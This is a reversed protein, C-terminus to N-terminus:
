ITTGGMECMLMIMKKTPFGMPKKPFGVMKPFGWIEIVVLSFVNSYPWHEGGFGKQLKFKRLVGFSAVTKVRSCLGFKGFLFGAFMELM